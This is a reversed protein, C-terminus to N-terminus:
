LATALRSVPSNGAITHRTGHHGTTHPIRPDHRPYRHIRPKTLSRFGNYAVGGITSVRGTLCAFAAQYVGASTPTSSPSSVDISILNM